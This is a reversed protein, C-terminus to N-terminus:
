PAVPSGEVAQVELDIQLPGARRTDQRARAVVMAVGRIERLRKMTQATLDGRLTGVDREVRVIRRQTAIAAVRTRLFDRLEQSLVNNSKEGGGPDQGSTVMVDVVEGKRFVLDNSYWEFQLSVPSGRPCDELAIVELVIQRDRVGALRDVIWRRYAEPKKPAQDPYGEPVALIPRPLPTGQRGAVTQQVEDFVGEVASALVDRPANALVVRQQIREGQHFALGGRSGSDQVHGLDRLTKLASAQLRTLEDRRRALQANATRLRDGTTRLRDGTTRLRSSEASLRTTTKALRSNAAMLQSQRKTLGANKDQLEGYKKRQEDNETRLHDNSAQLGQNKQELSRNSQELRRRQDDLRTNTAFLERNERLLAEGETVARRFSPVAAMAIGFTVAGIVVGTVVTLLVATHKPRLGFATLRRKGLRRGLLDGTYAISGCLVFLTLILLLTGM